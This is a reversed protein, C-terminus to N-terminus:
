KKEDIEGKEKELASFLKGAIFEKAYTSLSSVEIQTNDADIETFFVGVATTDERSVYVAIMHKKLSQAYIYAGIGTVLAEKTKNYCTDYDYNVKKIIASKRQEELSRTSIGAFAKSGEIVTACGLLLGIVWFGFLGFIQYNKIKRM